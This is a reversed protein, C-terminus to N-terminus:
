PLVESLYANLYPRWQTADTRRLAHSDGPM